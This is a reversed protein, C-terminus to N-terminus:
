REASTASKGTRLSEIPQVCIFRFKADSPFDVSNCCLANGTPKSMISTSVRNQPSSSLDERRSDDM